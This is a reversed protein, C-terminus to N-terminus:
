FGGHGGLLSLVAVAGVWQSCPFFAVLSFESFGFSMGVPEPMM